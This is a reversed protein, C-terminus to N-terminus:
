LKFFKTSQNSRANGSIQIMVAGEGSAEGRGRSGEGKPSPDPTLSPAPPPDEERQRQLPLCKGHGTCINICNNQMNIWSKEPRGEAEARSSSVSSVELINYSFKNQFNYFSRM